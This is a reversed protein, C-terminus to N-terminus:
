RYRTVRDGNLIGCTADLTEGSEITIDDRADRPEDRVDLRELVRGVGPVERADAVGQRRGSGSAHRCEPELLM